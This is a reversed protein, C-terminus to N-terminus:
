RSSSFTGRISTRFYTQSSAPSLYLISSLATRTPVSPMSSMSCPKKWTLFESILRIAASTPGLSSFSSSFVPPILSRTSVNVSSPAKSSADVSNFDTAATVGSISFCNKLSRPMEKSSGLEEMANSVLVLLSITFFVGSLRLLISASRLSISMWVGSTSM